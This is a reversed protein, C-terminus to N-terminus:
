GTVADRLLLLAARVAAARVQQRTAGAERLERVEGGGPGDVALYVTGPTRGHQPDPGAVGTLGVGVTAGFRTRCGAALALAVDPDVPGREALLGGDVGVLSAKTDTAYCIIGGRVMASAGPVETLLAALLGATLSEATAVTWGRAIYADVLAALEAPEVGVLTALGGPEDM